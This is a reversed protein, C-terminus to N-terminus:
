FEIDNEGVYKVQETDEQSVGVNYWVRVDQGPIHTINSGEEGVNVKEVVSDVLGHVMGIAKDFLYGENALSQDFPLGDVVDVVRWGLAFEETKAFGYSDENYFLTYAYDDELHTVVIDQADIKGKQISREVADNPNVSAVFQLYIMYFTGASILLFSLIKKM